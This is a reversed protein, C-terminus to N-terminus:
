RLSPQILLALGQPSQWGGGCPETEGEGGRPEQVQCTSIHFSLYQGPMRTLVRFPHLQKCGSGQPAREEEGPHLTVLALPHKGSLETQPNVLVERGAYSICSPTLSVLEQKCAERKQCEM